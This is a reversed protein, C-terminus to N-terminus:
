NLNNLIIDAIYKNGEINFHGHNRFFYLSLPDDHQILDKTTDIVPIDMGSILSVVKQKNSSHTQTFFESSDKLKVREYEPIYVFILKGGNAEVGKKALKFVESFLEWDRSMIAPQEPKTLGAAKKATKLLDEFISRYNRKLYDATGGLLLKEGM